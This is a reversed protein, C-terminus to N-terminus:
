AMGRNLEYARDRHADCFGAGKYGTVRVDVPGMCGDALCRDAAPAPAPDDTVGYVRVAAPPVDWTKAAADRAATRSSARVELGRRTGGWETWAHYTANANSADRKSPNAEM